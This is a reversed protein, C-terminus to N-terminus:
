NGTVQIQYTAQLIEGSNVTKAGTLKRGLMVGTTADNFVGIENVTDPGGATATWQKYLQLTDNTQATTFRSITASARALGHNTIETTLATLAASEATSGSGVALYTFAVQTGTNGMLGSIVALSTNTIKNHGKVEWKVSGDQKRCVLHVRGILGITNKM